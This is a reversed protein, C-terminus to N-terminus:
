FYTIEFIKCLQSPDGTLIFPFLGFPFIHHFSSLVSFFPVFFVSSPSIGHYVEQEWVVPGHRGQVILLLFNVSMSWKKRGNMSNSAQPATNHHIWLYIQSFKSLRTNCLWKVDNERKNVRPSLPRDIYAGTKKKMARVLTWKTTRKANFRGYHPNGAVQRNPSM